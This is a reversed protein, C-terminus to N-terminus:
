LGIAKAYNELSMEGNLDDTIRSLASLVSAAHCGHRQNKEIDRVLIRIDALAEDVNEEMKGIREELVESDSRLIIYDESLSLFKNTRDIYKNQLEGHKGMLDLLDKMYQKKSKVEGMKEGKHHL